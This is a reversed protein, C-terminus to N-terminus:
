ASTYYLNVSVKKVRSFLGGAIYHVWNQEQMDFKAEESTVAKESSTAGAAVLKARISEEIKFATGSAGSM